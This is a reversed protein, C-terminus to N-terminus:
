QIVEFPEPESFGTIPISDSLRARLTDVLYDVVPQETAQHGAEIVTLGRDLCDLARAEIEQDSDVFEYRLLAALQRGITSKGAGMPGVLIVNRNFSM